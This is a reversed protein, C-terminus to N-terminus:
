PQWAIVPGIEAGAETEFSDALETKRGTAVAISMLQQTTEATIFAAISRGDPSFVSNTKSGDPLETLKRAKGPGIRKVWLGQDRRFLLTHGDASVDEVSASGVGQVQPRVQSGNRRMTYVDAYAAPSESDDGRSFLIGGAFYRPAFEDIGATVTLHALGGGTPRVSYLDDNIAGASDSAGRVFVIAKGDPSFHAERDDNAGTTLARTGGGKSGVTYLDAAAGASARREFVVYRGNPSVRPASDIEPGSTLQRQGSGDPRVSFLDGDRAFAITRGDPSFSPEADAANESLQNLHGDRIAFLGGKLGSESESGEGWSQSFVVAGPRAKAAATVPIALALLAFLVSIITTKRSM